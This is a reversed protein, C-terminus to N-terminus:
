RHSVAGANLALRQLTYNAAAGAAAGGATAAVADIGCAVGAAMVAWHVATAVGGAIVFRVSRRNVAERQDRDAPATGRSDTPSSSDLRNM